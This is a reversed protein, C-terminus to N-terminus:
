LTLWGLATLEQNTDHTPVTVQSSLPDSPKRGGLVTLDPPGMGGGPEPDKGGAEDM